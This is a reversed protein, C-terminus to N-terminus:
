SGTGAGEQWTFVIGMLDPDGAALREYLRPAEEVPLVHSLIPRIRILDQEICHLLVRLDDRGFHCSTEIRAETGHLMGWPYTTDGRVAMMGVCGSHALLHHEHIERLLAPASCADFIFNYPGGEQLARYVDPSSADLVRHAGGKAAAELRRPVLDSVTVYAGAARACQGLFYGIPGQGAVWVRDGVAVRMRRVARMAVGAVGLLAMAVRDCAPNLRVILGQEHCLLWGRHGVYDGCFVLDGVRLEKADPGVARVIAVHQYGHRSPFVGGGYGHETLLAHRETGNTVGSLVTECLVMDGAPEPPPEIPVLEARGRAVFEIAINRM